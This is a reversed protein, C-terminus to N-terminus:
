FDCKQTTEGANVRSNAMHSEKALPINVLIIWASVKYTGTCHAQRRLVTGRPVWGGQQQFSTWVLGTSLAPVHSLLEPPYSAMKSMGAEFFSGSSHLQSILGALGSLQIWDVCLNM